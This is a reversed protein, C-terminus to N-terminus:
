VRAESPAPKPGHGPSGTGLGPAAGVGGGVGQGSEPGQGQAQAAEPAQTAATDVHASALAAALVTQQAARAHRLPPLPPPAPAPGSSTNGRKALPPPAPSLPLEDHDEHHEVEVRCGAQINTIFVPPLHGNIIRNITTFLPFRTEWARLKIIGQVEDSTLTGQLKQGKLIEAELDEFSMPKGELQAKTWACAVLRNRGGACTAVLDGVGCGELFTQDHVGPYLAKSLDRMESLGQRIITAKTNPGMGLGDVMGAGLAVINKLTGCMEAGIPDPLLTIRFYPREFLKKFREAHELNQYGIVAESLEEKAIDTAINAGMLVCCDINLYRRVMQSVLQPGEPQVRMGKILSIAAAGPKVKGMLQQCVGLMYQHPLCFILLDADSVVQELSTVAQLNRGLTYGPFYKTNEHTENMTQALSRGKFEEERVWMTVEELFEDAMDYEATNQTVMRSAACAWAGSGIIAVRYRALAQALERHDTVYWEAARAVDDRPMVGGYGIFVDAGRSSQVAHLDYMDKGVFAVTHYPHKQRIRAIAKPKGERHATPEKLDFGVLKTAEGTEDDWQWNMRNAFVRDKPIGLHAALPLTLERFGDGVLYVAVGRAQLTKILSEVGPALRSAPPHSQLFRKIDHPSCHIYSLKQATAAELSLTGEQVRKSLAKVQERVGMFEALLDLSYETTITGDVDFVVADAKRWLSLSRETPHGHPLGNHGPAM